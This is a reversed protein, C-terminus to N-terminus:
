ARGNRCRASAGCGADFPRLDVRSPTTSPSRRRPPARRGRGRDHRGALEEGDDAAGAAALRRQQPQDGPEVPRGGPSTACQRRAPRRRQLADTRRRKWSARRRGQCRTMPLTPMARSGPQRSAARRGREGIDPEGVAGVIPRRDEGAALLLADREGARQDAAGAHEEEVLREAREVRQGPDLHVPQEVADPALM